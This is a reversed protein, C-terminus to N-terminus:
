FSGVYEFSNILCVKLEELIGACDKKLQTNSMSQAIMMGRHHLLIVMINISCHSWTFYCVCRRIDGTRIAM